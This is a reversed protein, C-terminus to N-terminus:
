KEGIDIGRKEGIDIGRKEGIDIGRKEGIDIGRKEGIDIRIRWGTPSSSSTTTGGLSALTLTPKSGPTFREPSSAAVSTATSAM